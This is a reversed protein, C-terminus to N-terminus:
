KGARVVEVVAPETGKGSSSSGSKGDGFEVALGESWNVNVVREFFDEKFSPVNAM